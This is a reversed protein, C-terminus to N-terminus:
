LLSLLSGGKQLASEIALFPMPLLTAQEFFRNWEDIYARLLLVPETTKFECIRQLSLHEKLLRLLCFRACRM